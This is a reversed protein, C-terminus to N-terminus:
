KNSMLFAILDSLQSSSLTQGFTKPMVNDPFGKVVFASPDVISQHIYDEASTGPIMTAAITGIHTLEPGVAGTSLGQITHCGSCGVSLFVQKGRAVPDAAETASPTPTSVTPLTVEGLATAKFNMIYDALSQIQDARLPGGFADSWAPMAPHGQGPYQDPRTSVLRGSSVTAIIYDELSGSWGVESLRDTFFHKDSLPPCLGPIGEAKAGHCGSCNNEFLAAGVEISQAQQEVAFKAMRTNENLGVYVLIGGTLLVIITGLLIEFQLRSM